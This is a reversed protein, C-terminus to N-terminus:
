RNEKEKRKKEKKLLFTSSLSPKTGETQMVTREPVQM